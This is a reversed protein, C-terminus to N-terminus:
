LYYGSIINWDKEIHNHNQPLSYISVCVSRKSLVTVSVSRLCRTTNRGEELTLAGSAVLATPEGLSFGAAFM